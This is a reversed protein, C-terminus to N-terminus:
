RVASELYTIEKKGADIKCRIGLPITILPDTHGFDVNYLVPLDYGRLADDLIMEFSDKKNFGVNTHFRGVVLGKIQDFVGLQRLRTFLRDITQPKEEEDEEVFLIRDNLEPWYPTNELLLMTGLNGGIIQGEAKGPSYTKWGETKKVLMKKDKREWWPNDSYIPSPEIRLPAVGKIITNEFYKWSYDFVKPQCYTIVAPGSFSVLGTKAFIGVQLATTDSYGIIPKPHRKILEYDLYELLQHSQFGGWFAIIGDIDPDRIFNHFANVRERITGASNGVRKHCNSAEVLEFGKNRLYTYGRDLSQKSVTIPTSTAIIGLKDGEALRNPKILKMRCKLICEKLYTKSFM